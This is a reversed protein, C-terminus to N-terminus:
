VIAINMNRAFDTVTLADDLWLRDAEKRGWQAFSTLYKPTDMAKRWGGTRGQDKVVEEAM